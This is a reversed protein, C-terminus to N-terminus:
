CDVTGLGLYVLETNYISRRHNKSLNQVLNGKIIEEDGLEDDSRDSLSEDEFVEHSDRQYILDSSCM